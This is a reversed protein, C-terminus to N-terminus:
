IAVKEINKNLSNLNYPINDLQIEKLVTNNIVPFCKPM